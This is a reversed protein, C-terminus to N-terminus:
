DVICVIKGIRLYVSALDAMRHSQSVKPKTSNNETGSDPCTTRCAWNLSPVFTTMSPDTLSSSCM